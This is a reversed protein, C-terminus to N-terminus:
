NLVVGYDNALKFLEIPKQWNLIKRPMENIQNVVDDLQVQSISNFDFGKHFMRRIM